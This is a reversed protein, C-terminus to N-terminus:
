FLTTAPLIFSSYLLIPILLNTPNFDYNCQINESSLLSDLVAFPIFVAVSNLSTLSVKYYLLNIMDHVLINLHAINGSSPLLIERFTAWKFM